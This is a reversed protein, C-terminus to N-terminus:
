GIFPFPPARANLSAIQLLEVLPPAYIPIIIDSVRYSYLHIDANTLIIDKVSHRVASCLPCQDGSHPKPKEKGSQLDALKVWKLGEGTCLLIKEGFALSYSPNKAHQASPSIAVFPLVANVLLAMVLILPTYRMKQMPPFM